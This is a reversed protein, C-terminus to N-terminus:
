PRGAEHGSLISAVVSTLDAHAEALVHVGRRKRMAIRVEGFFRTAEAQVGARMAVPDLTEDGGGEPSFLRLPQEFALGIEDRDYVQAARVDARRRLLADLSPTWAETPEMFDGVVVVLGRPHARQGVQALAVELGARGAPRLTSLTGFIRAVQGRGRRAPLVPAVMGEGAVVTLGVPENELFLVWALTAVIGLAQEWKAPTSGLDGSADLVLTAGMETEARYRRVVLRDRRAVVRWDLDRLSDGASYPKYDAFEVAQGVRISRRLGVGLGAAAARARLQLARVRELAEPRWLTPPVAATM